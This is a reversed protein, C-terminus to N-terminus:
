RTTWAWGPLSELRKVREASLRAKAFSARQRGVWSGLRFGNPRIYSQLVATTGHESYYGLLHEYGEEWADALPDWTWGTLSGLRQQRALDLKGETYRCRQVGAWGGLRYGTADTYSVAVAATGHEAVYALLREYGEEWRDRIVRWTWSPHSRELASIKTQDLKGKLFDQRRSTVWQGLRFGDTGVYNQPVLASGHEKTYALLHEYGERWEDQFTNWSWTPHLNELRSMQDGSLRHRRKRQNSVWTGLAFGGATEYTKPVRAHGRRAVYDALHGFGEEWRASRVEWSWTPHIAELRLRKEESLKGQAYTTRQVGVWQGLRYGDSARFDSQVLADQFASVYKKLHVFGKEWHGNRPTWSWTPHSNELRLKREDELRGNHYAARQKSSWAGLSFGDPTRYSQPVQASENEAIYNELHAFGELWAAEQAGWVWGDLEGLKQQREPALAGKSSLGRQASVWAGLKFGDETRYSKRVLADGFQAVYQELHTLGTQWKTDHVDTTWEPLLSLRERREESLTDWAGRQKRVWGGLPHGEFMERAHIRASGRGAAYRELLGFWFEWSLTTQEVLRISFAASFAADVSKPIDTHINPPLQPTRGESGMERRLTDLQRGLEDDHSRLARVVDWVPKFASADLVTEPDDGDEVFVPIVITGQTKEDSKRIARGVAQVIDVESRRPDIFAVCDLSPVDVGESLCRANSLLGRKGDELTALHQILRGRKGADMEGSVHRAWLEGPPREGRPMWEIVTEMSASFDQAARVTSHFSITRRLNFKKMAKALGIQSAAKHAPLPRKGDLTVATGRRAWDLYTANDVAVIAVRYKTLLKREIAEGFSLRHFVPGFKTHDDMSAYEFDEDKSVRRTADSYIRPTATMFLRRRAKIKEADLVTAFDSRVPGAVRHAEDAVVLDFAPVRGLRFAEAIQPSSHYTSFIVRPGRKRLFAAIAEPRTEPPVGLNAVHAVLEDESASVSADSCVPLAAFPSVGGTANLWERMTQKLLSLSPVLVLTREASLKERIFWATLTKGTGCAMILQGRGSTTFGDVVNKIPDLQHERPQAPELPPPPSLDDAHEPWPLRSARLDGRDRIFVPKDQDAINRQALHHLGNTTTSILLRYTFPRTSSAALFKNLEAKPIPKDEGYGKSQIAWLNGDTDEAVLDIGTDVDVDRGPWQKWPWVKTLREAYEPDNELYWKCIREFQAGRVRNDPSLSAFLDDFGGM